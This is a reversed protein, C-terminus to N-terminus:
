QAIVLQAVNARVGGQTIVVEVLGSPAEPPVRLNIQYLGVGGPTLGAFLIEATRGGITLQPRVDVTALPNGPSPVAAAVPPTTAGMGVLYLTLAEGPRAPNEPTVLTFDAHQAVLRGDPFVVTGPTVPALNVMAPVSPVGNVVVLSAVPLPPLEPPIQVNLQTKSAFFLPASRPGMIVEVGQLSLPLPVGSASVPTTAFNDGFIQTVTGPALPGGVIPNLNHLIGGPAIVPPPAANVRVGGAIIQTDPRLGAIAATLTVLARAAPRGPVWTASYDGARSDPALSLPPDGNSFTAVVSGDGRPDGCDDFMRATLNAPFALPISFNAILSTEVIVAQTPTCGAAARIAAAPPPQVLLTIKTSRLTSEVTVDVTGRYVGPSLGATSAQINIRGPNSTSAIGSSTSLSLWNGGNLTQAAATFNAPDTRSVNVTLVQAAPPAGGQVGTFYFGAPSPQPLTPSAAPAVDVVVTLYQPSNLANPDSVEILAYNPGPTNTGTSSVTLALNSGAGPVSVGTAPTLNVLAGGSLARASWNVVSGTDGLNRVGVNGVFSAGQGQRTEFRLGTKNLFLLPGQTSVVLTVPIDIVGLPSTIRVADLYTGAAQGQSNVAITLLTAQANDVSSKSLAVSELWLSDGRRAAAIPTSEGSGAKTILVTQEIRQPNALRAGFVLSTPAASLTSPAPAYNYLVPPSSELVAGSAGLLDARLQVQGSGAPIRAPSVTLQSQLLPSATQVPLRVSEQILRTGEFLALRVFGSQGAELDYQVLATFTQLTDAPLTAGAPPDTSLVGVIGARQALPTAIGGGLYTAFMNDFNGDGGDRLLRGRWTPNAGPSTEFIEFFGRNNGTYAQYRGVLRTGSTCAYIEGGGQFDFVAAYFERKQTAPPCSAAAFNPDGFSNILAPAGSPDIARFSINGFLTPENNSTVAWNGNFAGEVFV